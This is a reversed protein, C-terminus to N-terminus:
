GSPLRKPEEPWEVFMVPVGEPDKVSAMRPGWHLQVPGGLVPIGKSKLRTVLADLGKVKVYVYHKGHEIPFGVEQDRIKEQEAVIIHSSGFKLAAGHYNDDSWDSAVEMGLADRWFGMSNSWDRPCVFVHDLGLIEFSESM